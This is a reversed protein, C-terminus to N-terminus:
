AEITPEPKPEDTLKRFAGLGVLALVTVAMLATPYILDSVDQMKTEIVIVISELSLAIIVITFFKTMAQRAERISGMERDRLVEEEILFKGVDFVAVAIIVLGISELTQVLLQEASFFASALQWVAVGLLSLALAFLSMAAVSFFLNSTRELLTQPRRM